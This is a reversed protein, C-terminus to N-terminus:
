FEFKWSFIRTLLIIPPLPNIYLIKSPIPQAANDKMHSQSTIKANEHEHHNLFKISVLKCFDRSPWKLSMRPVFFVGYVDNAAMIQLKEQFLILFLLAFFM